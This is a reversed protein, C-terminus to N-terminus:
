KAADSWDRHRRQIGAGLYVAALLLWLVGFVAYAGSAQWAVTSTIFLAGALAYFASWRLLRRSSRFPSM